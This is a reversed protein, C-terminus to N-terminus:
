GREPKEDTARVDALERIDRGERERPQKQNLDVATQPLRILRSRRLPAAPIVGAAEDADQEAADDQRAVHDADGMRKRNTEELRLHPGRGSPGVRCREM